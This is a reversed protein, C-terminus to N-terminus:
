IFGNERLRELSAKYQDESSRTERSTETPPSQDTFGILREVYKGILDAELNVLDGVKKTLLTTEDKTMPIISVKFDSQGVEAVTLSVGDIAISGKKFLYRMFPRETKITMWTAIDDKKFAEIHGVGDIHGSVMHGGLRDGLKLARELNVTDGVKLNKLASVRMTQPMVDAVFGYDDFRVVTLCVGNTAISDGKKTGQVVKKAGITLQISKPGRSIMKINGVEEILGTFM